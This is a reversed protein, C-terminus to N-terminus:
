PAVKIGTGAMHAQIDVAYVRKNTLIQQTGRQRSCMSEFIAHNSAPYLTDHGQRDGMYPWEAIDSAYDRSQCGSGMQPRGARRLRYNPTNPAYDSAAM